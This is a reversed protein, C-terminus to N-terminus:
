IRLLMGVLARAFPGLIVPTLIREYREAAGRALQWETSTMM